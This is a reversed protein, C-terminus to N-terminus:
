AHTDNSMQTRSNTICKIVVCVDSYGTHIHMYTHVTQSKNMHTTVWRHALTRSAYIWGAGIQTAQTYICICAHVTQSENMHATVWRHTDAALVAHSWVAVSVCLGCQPSSVSVVSCRLCLSWVAAFVCLGCQLSSVSIKYRSLYLLIQACQLVSVSIVICRLCLYMTEASVVVDSEVAVFDWLDCQLLFVSASNWNICCCRIRSCSLCLYWVAVFICIHQILQYLLM